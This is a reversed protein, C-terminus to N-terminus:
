LLAGVSKGDPNNSFLWNNTLDHEVSFSELQAPSLPCGCCESMEEDDDFVYIMACVDEVAGFATNSNGNPNILRLINDGNGGSDCVGATTSTCATVTQTTDFYTWMVEGPVSGTVTSALGAGNRMSSAQLPAILAVAATFVVAVVILIRAKGYRKM